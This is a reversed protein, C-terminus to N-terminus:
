TVLALVLVAATPAVFAVSPRPCLVGCGVSHCDALTKLSGEVGVAGMSGASGDSDGAGAVSAGESGGAAGAGSIGGAPSGKQVGM